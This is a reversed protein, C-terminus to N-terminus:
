KKEMETFYLEQVIEQWIQSETKKGQKLDGLKTSYLDREKEAFPVEASFARELKTSSLSLGGRLFQIHLSHSYKKNFHELKFIYRDRAFDQRKENTPFIYDNRWAVYGTKYIVITPPNVFPTLVGLVRFKGDKDTVKEAIRYTETYDLGTWGGKTKTWEFFVVAGEIPRGTEADIVTGSISKSNAPCGSVSLTMLIVLLVITIKM